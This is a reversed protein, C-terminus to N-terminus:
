EDCIRRGDSETRRYYPGRPPAGQGRATNLLKQKDATRVTASYNRSQHFYMWGYIERTTLCVALCSSSENNVIDTKDRWEQLDCLIPIQKTNHTLSCNSVSDIGSLIHSSTLYGSQMYSLLNGVIPSSFSSSFTIIFMFCDFSFDFYKPLFSYRTINICIM